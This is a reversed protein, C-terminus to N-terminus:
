LPKSSQNGPEQAIQVSPAEVIEGSIDELSRGKTKVGFVLVMVAGAVLVVTTMGFVGAFGLVPFLIGVVIPAGIAGLRGIASSTGMGTARVHTPFVESTYAYLTGFAGNMFYSLGIAAAMIQTESSALALAGACVAGLLLFSGIAAHRGLRENFFAASFYGPIQAGYIAISFAFSKMITFGSQILLSPIWTFFAFYSFAMAIWLFWSLATIRALSGSWLAFLNGWLTGPTRKTPVAIRYLMPALTYGEKLVAAEISAITEEASETNGQSELWRPSEPLTRRWWLVMGIPLTTVILLVKYSAAMEGILLYSLLAAIVYGFSFFGALSGTFQGRYQKGVFEALYPAIIASEAGTGFGAVVRLAYFASPTDVFVCGLSALTYIALAAMMVKKRGILDGLVGATLAGFFYGVYTSSALFGVQTSSLTWIRKLVPLIFAVSASDMADFTYGLGGALLLKRHFRSFPLRDLRASISTM